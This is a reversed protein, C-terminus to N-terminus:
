PWFLESNVLSDQSQWHVKVAGVVLVPARVLLVPEDVEVVVLQVLEVVVPVLEAASNLFTHLFPNLTGFDNPRYVM